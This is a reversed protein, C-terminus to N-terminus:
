VTVENLYDKRNNLFCWEKFDIDYTFKNKESPNIITNMYSLDDPQIKELLKTVGIDNIEFLRYTNFIAYYCEKNFGYNEITSALEELFDTNGFKKICLYIDVFKYLTLDRDRKVWDYVTAEKYLHLCLYIVFDIHNLTPLTNNYTKICSERGNLMQPILNVDQKAKYDLSFNLDVEFYELNSLGSEKILPVTEGNNLRSNVIDRRSAAVFEGGRIFGQKYGNSKFKEVFYSIDEKNILFDIDNSTRTGYPYLGALYSGKLLAFPRKENEFMYSLSSLFTMFGDSIIRTSKYSNKIATVFERNIRKLLDFEKLKVYALSALRNFMLQGLIYPYDLEPIILQDLKDRNDECIKCLELIVTQEKVYQNNNM